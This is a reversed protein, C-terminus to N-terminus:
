NRQLVRRLERIAEFQNMGEPPGVLITFRRFQRDVYKQTSPNESVFKKWTELSFGDAVLLLPNIYSSWQEIKEGWSEDFSRAQYNALSSIKWKPSLHQKLYEAYEHLFLLEEKQILRDWLLIVPIPTPQTYILEDRVHTIGPLEKWLADQLPAIATRHAMIISLAMLALLPAIILIFRKLM